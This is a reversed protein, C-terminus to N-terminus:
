KLILLIFSMTKAMYDIERSLVENHTLVKTWEITITNMSKCKPVHKHDNRNPSSFVYYNFKWSDLNRTENWRGSENRWSLFWTKKAWNICKLFNLNRSYESLWCSNGFFLSLCNHLSKKPLVSLVQVLCPM